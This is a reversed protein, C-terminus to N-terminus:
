LTSRSLAAKPFLYYLRGPNKIVGSHQKAEPGSGWFLDVRGPGKIAGGTDQDFVLRSVKKFQTPEEDQPSTFVPHDFELLALAGKPFFKQDTAITRGAQAENGFYTVARKDSSAFFIYSPNKNMLEQMQEPPLARLHSEIKQLSMKERPIIDFLFQGIAQYDHGNQGAYVVRLEKKTKSKSELHVRGSGQIHLFFADIPDVWAIIKASKKLPMEATDINARDYYPVIQPLSPAQNKVLRGRLGERFKQNALVEPRALLQPFREAFDYVKVFVMDEPLGYLAQTFKKTRKLSGEIFPEFYSTMFIQAWSDSGYVELEVFNESLNKLTLEFTPKGFESKQSAQKIDAMVDLNLNELAALYDSRSISYPGFTLTSQNNKKLAEINAQLAKDFGQFGLDDSYNLESKALRMAKDPSKITSRACGALMAVVVLGLFSWKQCRLCNM